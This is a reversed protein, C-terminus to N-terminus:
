NVKLPNLHSFVGHGGFGLLYYSLADRRARPRDSRRPLAPQPYRRDRNATILRCILRGHERARNPQLTPSTEPESPSRPVKRGCMTPAIVTTPPPSFVAKFGSDTGEVIAEVQARQLERVLSCLAVSRGQEEQLPRGNRRLLRRSLPGKMPVASFGLGTQLCSPSSVRSDPSCGARTM